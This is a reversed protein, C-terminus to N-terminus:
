DGPINYIISLVKGGPSRVPLVLYATVGATGDHSDVPFESPVESSNGRLVM